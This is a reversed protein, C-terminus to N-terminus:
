HGCRASIQGGTAGCRGTLRESDDLGLCELGAECDALERCRNGCSQQSPGYSVGPTTCRDIPPLGLTPRCIFNGRCDDDEGHCLDDARGRPMCRLDGTANPRCVVGSRCETNEACRGGDPTFPPTEPQCERAICTLGANCQADIWCWDGQEHFFGLFDAKGEATPFEDCPSALLQEADELTCESPAFTAGTCELVHAAAQECREEASSAHHALCGTFTIAIAVATFARVM